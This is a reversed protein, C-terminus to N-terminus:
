RAPAWMNSVVAAVYSNETVDQEKKRVHLKRKRESANTLRCGGLMQRRRRAVQLMVPAECGNSHAQTAKVKVELATASGSAASALNTSSHTLSCLLARADTLGGAASMSYM